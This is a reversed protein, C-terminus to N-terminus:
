LYYVTVDIDDIRSKIISEIVQWEGGALGAGIKPIALRNDKSRHIERNLQVFVEDIADYSVYKRGDHGAFKQTICNFVIKSGDNTRVPIISGLRLPEASHQNAKYVTEYGTYVEPWRKRLALAVGAGMVGQANCGHAIYRIDTTLLDGRIYTINGM